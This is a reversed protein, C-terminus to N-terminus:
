FGDLACDNRALAARLQAGVARLNRALFAAGIGVLRIPPFGHRREAIGIGAHHEDAERGARVPAIAGPTREGAVRRAIEQIRCEIARAKSRLRLGDIAAVTEHEM